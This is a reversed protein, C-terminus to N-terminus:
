KGPDQQDPTQASGSSVTVVADNPPDPLVRANKCFIASQDVCVDKTDDQISRQSSVVPSSSNFEFIDDSSEIDSGAGGVVAPTELIKMDCTAPPSSTADEGISVHASDSPGSEECLASQDSPVSMDGISDDLREKPMRVRTITM